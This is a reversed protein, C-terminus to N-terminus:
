QRGPRHGHSGHLYPHGVFLSHGSLSQEEMLLCHGVAGIGAGGYEESFPLGMFEMEAAKQLTELPPREEQDIAEALPEVENQAFDRFLEQFMQQEESLAFDM